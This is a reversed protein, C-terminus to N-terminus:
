IEKVTEHSGLNTTAPSLKNKWIVTTTTKFGEKIASSIPLKNYFKQEPIRRGLETRKPFIM